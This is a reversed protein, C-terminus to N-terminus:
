TRCIIMNLSIYAINIFIYKLLETIVRKTHQEKVLINGATM